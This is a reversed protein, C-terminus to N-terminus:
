KLDGIKLPTLNSLVQASDFAGGKHSSNYKELSGGCAKLIDDGGPHKSIYSTVDYVIGKYSVWCSSKSNNKAVEAESYTKSSGSTMSTNSTNSSNSNSTQMSSTTSSTMTTSTKSNNKDSDKKDWNMGSLVFIIAIVAVVVILIIPANKKLTESNM